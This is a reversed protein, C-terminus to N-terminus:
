SVLAKITNTNSRVNSDVRRIYVRMDAIREAVEALSIYPGLIHLVIGIFSFEVVVHQFSSSEDSVFTL